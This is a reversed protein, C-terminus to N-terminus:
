WRSWAAGDRAIAGARDLEARAASLARGPDRGRRLADIVPELAAAFEPLSELARVRVLALENATVARDRNAIARVFDRAADQVVTEATRAERTAPGGKEKGQMRVRPVDVVVRSVRSRLYYRNALRARDLAGAAARMFPLATAAEAIQLERSASWMEEYATKLNPNIPAVGEETDEPEGEAEIEGEAHSHAPYILDHVRERLRVQDTAIGRVRTLVSDRTLAPQERLLAETRLILMRQSVVTSEPVIPAGAEVAVSDYEDRRAVRYTRTDSVGVGRGSVTNADRAVARISILDGPGMRLTALDIAASLEGRRGGRFQRSGVVVTRGTFTEEAGSSLMYEIYGDSIGIDEEVTASVRVTGDARQMITDRPPSTLRVKPAADARPELVIVRRREGHMLTVAIPRAPMTLQARWGRGRAVPVPVDGVFAAVEAGRGSIAIRSGRLAAISSPDDASSSGVGAYAPPTVMVRIGALPDDPAAASRIAAKSARGSILERTGEAGSLAFAVGGALLAAVSAIILMRAIPPLLISKLDFAAAGELEPSVRFAPDTATVLAFELSPQREEVWLAVRELSRGPWARFLTILAAVTAGAGPLYTLGGPVSIGARGLGLLVVGVALAAALGWVGAAIVISIALYTRTRSVRERATM